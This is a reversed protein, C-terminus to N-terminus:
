EQVRVDAAIDFGFGKMVVEREHANRRWQRRIAGDFLELRAVTQSPAFAFCSDLTVPLGVKGPFELDTLLFRAFPRNRYQTFRYSDTQHGLDRESREEGPADIGAGHHRQHTFFRALRDFGKRNSEFFLIEAFQM